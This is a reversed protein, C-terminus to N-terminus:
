QKTFTVNSRGLSIIGEGTEVFHTGDLAKLDNLDASVVDEDDNYVSFTYDGGSKTWALVYYDNEEGDVMNGEADSPFQIYIRGTNQAIDTVEVITGRYVPQSAGTVEWFVSLKSDTIRMWTTGAYEDMGADTMDETDDGKWMGRFAGMNVAPPSQKFQSAVYEWTVLTAMNDESYFSIAEAINALETSSVDWANAFKVVGDAVTSYYVGEYNDNGFSNEPAVTYQVIIVGKGANEGTFALHYVITGEYATPSGYLAATVTDDYVLYNDSIDYGDSYSDWTGKLEAPIVLGTQKGPDTPGSCGM